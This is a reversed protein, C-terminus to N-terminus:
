MLTVQHDKVPNQTVSLRGSDGTSKETKKGIKIVRNDPHDASIMENGHKRDLNVLGKGITSLASIVIPILTVKM